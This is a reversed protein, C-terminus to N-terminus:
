MGATPGYTWLYYYKDGDTKIGLTHNQRQTYMYLALLAGLCSLFSILFVIMMPRRLFFPAWLRRSRGNVNICEGKAVPSSILSKEINVAHNQNLM